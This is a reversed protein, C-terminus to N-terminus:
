HSTLLFFYMEFDSSSISVLSKFLESIMTLEALKKASQQLEAQNPNPALFTANKIVNYVGLDSSIPANLVSNINM